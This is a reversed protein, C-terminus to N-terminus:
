TDTWHPSAQRKLRLGNFGRKQEGAQRPRASSFNRNELNQVFEKRTGFYEGTREAWSKWSAFLEDRTEFANPNLECCEDIWAWVADEAEMYAATTDRVISPVALGVRQWELCGQIMWQLIGPWEPKLKEALQKDRENLPITVTFPILHCRRRMAEDVSRLGPKHNGAIVLKFQPTFEFFDQRMLRAAIKDGGTLAKIKNEAWRKGAETEVATVFRAGRLGAIETPHRDGGSVTFAEIPATKHYDNLVGAITDLFVSKGNAGTGYLFAFCQERTSGTLAYGVLRQLYAQLERDGGSVRVLFAEWQPCEGGPAVSTIKTMYDQLRHERIAGTRLDV